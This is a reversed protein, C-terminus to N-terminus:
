KKEYTDIMYLTQFIINYNSKNTIKFKKIKHTLFDTRSDTKDNDLRCRTHNIRQIM